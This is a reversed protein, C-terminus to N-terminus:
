GPQTWRVWGWSQCSQPARWKGMRSTSSFRGMFGAISKQGRDIRSKGMRGHCHSLPFVPRPQLAVHMIGAPGEPRASPDSPHYVLDASIMAGERLLHGLSRSSRSPRDRELNGQFTRKSCDERHWTRPAYDPHFQKALYRKLALYRMDSVNQDGGNNNTKADVLKAEAVLARHKWSERQEHLMRSFVRLRENEKVMKQNQVFDWQHLEDLDNFFLKM